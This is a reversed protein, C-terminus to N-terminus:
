KRLRIRRGPYTTTKEFRIPRQKLEQKLHAVQKILKECKYVFYLRDEESQEFKKELDKNEARLSLVAKKLLTISEKPPDIECLVKKKTHVTKFM